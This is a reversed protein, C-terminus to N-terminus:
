TPGSHQPASIHLAIAPTLLPNSLSHTVDAQFLLTDGASLRLPRENGIVAEIVGIKVALTARGGIPLPAFSQNHGAEIIIESFDFPHRTGESHFSRQLFKGGNLSVLRREAERVLVLPSRVDSAILSATTVGLATAVKWIVTITPVSKGTEIQGLMARSVGSRRALTELSYGSQRRLSRLNAAVDPIDQNAATRAAPRQYSM